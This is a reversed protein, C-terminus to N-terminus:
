DFTKFMDETCYQPSGKNKLDVLMAADIHEPILDQTTQLSAKCTVCDAFLKARTRLLYGCLYIVVNRRTHSTSDIADTEASM